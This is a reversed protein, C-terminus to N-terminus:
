GIASFFDRLKGKDLKGNTRVGSCLDLGFPQVFEIAQKVNDKNLGGALFLPISISKRIERSLDWNHTRGTGGLEKVPLNPNGSDLLVADVYKSIEVAEKVSNDDIVHIVQVLKVNPLASRIIGYEREALADVIQITTTNVRKYHAIIELPKTESTLLFSSVPPPVIRAIQNILEYGIVGPGSPMHGVLGLASAGYEIAIGAEEVSSICCIKVRPRTM